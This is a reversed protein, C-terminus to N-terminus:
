KASEVAGAALKSELLNLLEGVHAIKRLEETSIKVKFRNEVQVVLGILDISDMGLGETLVTEDSLQGPKTGTEQEVLEALAQRLADRSMGM